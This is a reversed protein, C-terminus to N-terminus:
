GAAGVPELVSELRGTSEPQPIFPTTEQLSPDRPLSRRISSSRNSTSGSVRAAGSRNAASGAQNVVTGSGLDGAGIVFGGSGGSASRTSQPERSANSATEDAPASESETATKGGTASPSQGGRSRAFGGGGDAQPGHPQGTEDAAAPPAVQAQAAIEAAEEYQRAPGGAAEDHWSLVQAALAQRNDLVQPNKAPDALAPDLAFAQAYYRRARGDLGQADYVTGLFYLAAANTPDLDLARKLERKAPRRQGRDLLLRGLNYHATASAPDLEIAHRYAEEAGADDGALALLNGLDNWVRPDGASQSARQRQEDLARDLAASGGEGHSWGGSLLALALIPGLSIRRRNV